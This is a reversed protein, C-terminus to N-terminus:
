ARVLFIWIADFTCAARTSMPRSLAERHNARSMAVFVLEEKAGVEDADDEGQTLSYSYHAGKVINLGSSSFRDCGGDFGQCRAPGNTCVGGSVVAGYIRSFRVM